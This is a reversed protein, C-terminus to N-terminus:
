INFVHVKQDSKTSKQQSALKGPPYFYWIRSNKCIFFADQDSIIKLIIKFSATFKYRRIEFSHVNFSM